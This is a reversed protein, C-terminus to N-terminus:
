RKKNIKQIAETIIQKVVPPRTKPSSFQFNEQQTNHQTAQPTLILYEFYM